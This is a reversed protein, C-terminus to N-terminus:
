DAASSNQSVSNQPIVQDLVAVQRGYDGPCLRIDQSLIMQRKQAGSDEGLPRALYRLRCEELGSKNSIM